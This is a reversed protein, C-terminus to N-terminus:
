PTTKAPMWVSGSPDVGDITFDCADFDLVRNDGYVLKNCIDSASGREWPVSVERSERPAIRGTCAPFSRMTGGGKKQSLVGVFCAEIARDSANTVVCEFTQNRAHCSNATDNARVWTVATTSRVSAAVDAVAAQLTAAESKARTEDADHVKWAFVACAIITVPSLVAGIATAKSWPGPSSRSSVMPPVLVTRAHPHGNTQEYNM